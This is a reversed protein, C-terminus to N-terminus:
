KPQFLSWFGFFIGEYRGRQRNDPDPPRTDEAAHSVIIRQLEGKDLWIGHDACIDIEVDGYSSRKEMDKACTPCNM